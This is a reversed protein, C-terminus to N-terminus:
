AAADILSEDVLVQDVRRTERSLLWELAVLPLGGERAERVECSLRLPLSMM